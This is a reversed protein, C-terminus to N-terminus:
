HRGSQRRMMEKRMEEVLRRGSRAFLNKFLFTPLTFRPRAALEYSVESGGTKERLIWSGQYHVFDAGLVDEFRIARLPEEEVRLKLHLRRFFFYLRGVIVQRILIANGQRDLTQSKTVSSVFRAVHDYDTLVDWVTQPDAPVFFIARLHYLGERETLSIEPQGLPRANAAGPLLLALLICARHRM